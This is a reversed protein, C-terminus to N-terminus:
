PAYDPLHPALADLTPAAADKASLEPDPLPWDIGIAPDDWHLARESEPSYSTTCRYLVVADDSLAQFGHAFGPPVWLQTGEAGDLVVAEWAGFSPSDRRVDVVVDFVVGTLATVLKGQADPHQFHLGRIVGRRSVSVNEQVFERPVGELEDSARWLERFSGREDAHVAREFVRVGELRRASM